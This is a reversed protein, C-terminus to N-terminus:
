CPGRVPETIFESEVAAAILKQSGSRLLETLPDEEQGPTKFEVVRDKDM